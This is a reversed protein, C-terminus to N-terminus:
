DRLGFVFLSHGANVAVFQKGGAQYTMPSNTMRGGLNLNWLLNGNFVDLVVLQGQMSGSFLVNGATSMLGSESVEAMKFEWELEGTEPDLARVAGYGPEADKAPNPYIGEPLSGVYRNGRTYTPDGKYYMSPYSEWVPLYFLGTKPSYTPSYWNTAGQVSPYTKTGEKSPGAGAIRIPRGNEDIGKAWNQYVFAKALLFEGTARDLVYYFGNRNGWLILKRQKGKFERDVLVPVQVSDWDWEDHPTFQYYWKLKGNDPNLAVVSDSYLNDGKRVDANWDPAPNGTGWYLLNLDPDYSGTLWASGGGRKWSDGEWTEHGPEGPGPITYFRWLKKGTKVDHAQLFGRIGYEGGATGIIIKDKVILPALTISYGGTYDVVTIDWNVSGTKADLSLLRGDVTGMFLSDGAMALGRNIRGCCTNVKAPENHTYKWFSRGTAADIAVVNNPPETLYMVGDVVLPTAQFKELSRAQFVWKLELNKINERNIQDLKSFRQSKYSGSYTMWQEPENEANLLRESSVQPFVGAATATALALIRLTRM